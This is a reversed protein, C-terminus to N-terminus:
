SNRISRTIRKHIKRMLIVRVFMVGVSFYFCRKCTVSVPKDASMNLLAGEMTRSVTYHIFNGGDPHLFNGGEGKLLARHNSRSGWFSLKVQPCLM